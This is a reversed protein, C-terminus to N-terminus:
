RWIGTIPTAGASRGLLPLGWAQEITRLLGYHGTVATFRSGGRVATGLVLAAVHGGGRANSAGEDFVVFVATRPLALLPPIHARLWADGTAVSCDHMSNCMNPVVFSFDPLGGARLDRRLSTLPVVHTLRARDGVVDRFYLFPVHKKAYRGSFAGTFGARPLGEAYLKWTKGADALTDALNRSSVICSTCDTTIGQTSGSVLALYNPLSPHAVGGYRGLVAFRSALSNFNPADANGLVDGKAKNEMVVVIVHRFHPVRPQAAQAGGVFLAVLIAIAGISRRM